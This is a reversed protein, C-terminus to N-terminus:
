TKYKCSGRFTYSGQHSLNIWPAAWIKGGMKKVYQCFNLDESLYLKTEPDVGCDFFAFEDLGSPALNATEPYSSKFKEFTRRPVMMFGADVALVEIPGKESLPKKLPSLTPYLGAYNELSSAENDALGKKAIDRVAEWSIVKKPYLGALVDYQQEKDNAMLHLLSLVDTATFGIDADIFLFHTYDSQLFADACFNRARQVLSQNTIGCVNLPIDYTVCATALDIMGKLCSSTSMGGYMPAGIFLKAQRFSDKSFTIDM